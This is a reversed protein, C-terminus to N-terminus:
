RDASSSRADHGGYVIMMEKAGRRRWGYRPVKLAPAGALELRKNALVVM